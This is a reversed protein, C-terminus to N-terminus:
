LAPVLPERRSDPKVFLVQVNGIARERFAGECYCYYYHWMRLFEEGYGMPWIRNLNSAFGERWHRLTEAYHAGIDELHYIRVNTKRTVSDLIATVSPLFGGPFIYKQIFDVSRIASRYRQDAITIAQLLMMGNCRLLSACQDFYTDMYEHGVAEIMEISVLKDYQGELDRYDKLLLEVRDNLGAAAVRGAAYEYQERSITTTTVRCGYNRAAYVAFGGWGTGIELVHDDATLELKRCIRDLKAESAEKLTMDPREFVASSYMMTEDLWLSFFDNGLDYHASINRKSGARSNRNVWHLLKRAPVMLKASGSEMGDLVDRNKLLLQVVRTLDDCNWYGQMYAEAAGIAGGFAVAGYFRSDLVTITARDEGDETGFDHRTSDDALTLRGRQFGSLRRLLLHRALRDILRLKGAELSLPQADCTTEVDNM